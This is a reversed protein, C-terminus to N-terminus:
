HYYNHYLESPEGSNPIKDEFVIECDTVNDGNGSYWPFMMDESAVGNKDVKNKYFSYRFRLEYETNSNNLEFLYNLLTKDIIDVSTSGRLQISNPLDDNTISPAVNLLTIKFNVKYFDPLGAGVCLYGPMEWPVPEFNQNSTNYTTKINYKDLDYLKKDDTLIFFRLKQFGYDAIHVENNDGKEDLGKVLPLSVYYMDGPHLVLQDQNSGTFMSIKLFSSAFEHSLILNEYNISQPIPYALTISTTNDGSSFITRPSPYSGIETEKTLPNYSVIYLVNAYEKIGMPIFNTNLKCNQLGYNGMDNQLAFENGNFTLFTGNLCDSLANNPMTLPNMDSMLGETFTNQAEQRM